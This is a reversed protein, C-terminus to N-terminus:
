VPIRADSGIRREAHRGVFKNTVAASGNKSLRRFTVSSLIQEGAAGDRALDALLENREDVPPLRVGLSVVRGDVIIGRGSILLAAQRRNVFLTEAGDRLAPLRREGRHIFISLGNARRSKTEHVRRPVIWHAHGAQDSAAAVDTHKRGAAAADEAALRRRRELKRRIAGEISAHSVVHIDIASGDDVAFLRNLIVAPAYKVEDQARCRAM